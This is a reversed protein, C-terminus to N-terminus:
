KCVQQVLVRVTTESSNGASDTATLKINHWNVCDPAALTVTVTEGMGLLVEPHTPISGDDISTTWVLSEGFLAGDEPDSAAGQLLISYGYTNPPDILVATFHAGDEPQDITVISPPLDAGNPATTINVSASVTTFGDTGDLRIVHPGLALTGAPLTQRRGTALLAGDVYWSVQADPLVHDPLINPDFSRASLTVPSGQFHTAGDAPALIQM